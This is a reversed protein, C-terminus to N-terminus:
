CPRRVPEAGAADALVALEDRAADFAGPTLRYYTYRGCPETLVLGAERLAKLHHSILPQGVGLLEQLHTTCLQTGILLTLIRWRMPEALIRLVM